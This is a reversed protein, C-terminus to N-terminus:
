ISVPYNFQIVSYEGCSKYYDRNLALLTVSLSLIASSIVPILTVGLALAVLSLAGNAIGVTSKLVKYFYYNKSHDLAKRAAGEAAISLEGAKSYDCVSESLDTIEATLFASKTIFRLPALATLLFIASSWSAIMELVSRAAISVKRTLEVGDNACMAWISRFAKRTTAPIRVLGFSTLVTGSDEYVNRWMESPKIENGLRAVKGVLEITQSTGSLDKTFDGYWDIFPRENEINRNSDLWDSNIQNITSEM